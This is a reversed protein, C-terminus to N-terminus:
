HALPVALRPMFNKGTMMIQHPLEEKHIIVDHQSDEFMASVDKRFM